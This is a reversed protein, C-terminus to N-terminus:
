VAKYTAHSEVWKGQRRNQWAQAEPVFDCLEVHVTETSAWKAGRFRLELVVIDGTIGECHLSQELKVVAAKKAGHGPIFSAVQGFVETNGGLWTPEIEYGGSLRVRQGALLHTPHILESLDRAVSRIAKALEKPFTSYPM